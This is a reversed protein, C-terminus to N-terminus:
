IMTPDMWLTRSKKVFPFYSPHMKELCNQIIPILNLQLLLEISKTKRNNNKKKHILLKKQLLSKVVIEQESSNLSSLCSALRPNALWMTILSVLLAQVKQQPSIGLSAYEPELVEEKKIVIHDHDMVTPTIIPTESLKIDTEEISDMGLRKRMEKNQSMLLTMNSRLEENSKKLEKNERELRSVVNELQELREKKRDRANQAAVRNKLKRRIMKEQPTFDDLRKRKRGIEQTNTEDEISDLVKKANVNALCFLNGKFIDDEIM